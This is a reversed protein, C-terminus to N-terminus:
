PDLRHDRDERGEAVIEVVDVPSSADPLHERLAALGQLAALGARRNRAAM